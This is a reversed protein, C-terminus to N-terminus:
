ILVGSQSATLLIYISYCLSFSFDIAFVATFRRKLSNNELTNRRNLCSPECANDCFYACVCVIFLFVRRLANIEYFFCGLVIIFRFIRKQSRM